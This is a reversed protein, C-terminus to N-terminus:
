SLNKPHSNFSYPVTPSCFFISIFILMDKLYPMCLFPHFVESVNPAGYTVKNQWNTGYRGGYEIFWRFATIPELHAPMGVQDSSVVPKLEGTMEPASEVDGYLFVQRFAEFMAGDPDPPPLENGCGPVQVVIGSVRDDMAGVIMAEAGSSSCGWVAIRDLDIEPLTTVFDIADCYERAQTWYNIHQRPEGDSLGLRRHDYLLVALGAAHFSEAYRDATMGSITASFGHAMIVIPGEHDVNEPLYLRGRLTVGQSVFEISKTM